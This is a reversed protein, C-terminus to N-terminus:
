LLRRSRRAIRDLRGADLLLEASANWRHQAFAETRLSVRLSITGHGDHVAILAADGELSEWRREGGWGRWDEALAEFYEALGGLRIEYFRLSAQLAGCSLRANWYGDEVDDAHPGRKSDREIKLFAGAENSRIEFSAPESVARLIVPTEAAQAAPTTEAL